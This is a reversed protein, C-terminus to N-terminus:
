KNWWHGECGGERGRGEGGVRAAGVGARMGGHGGSGRAGWAARELRPDAGQEHGEQAVVLGQPLEEGMEGQEVEGFVLFRSRAEDAVGDAGLVAEAGADGPEDALVGIAARAGGAGAERGVQAGFGGARGRAGAWSGCFGHQFGRKRRRHSMGSHWGAGPM